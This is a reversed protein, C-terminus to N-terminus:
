AFHRRPETAYAFPHTRPRCGSTDNEAAENPCSPGAAPIRDRHAVLCYQLHPQKFDDQSSNGESLMHKETCPVVTCSCLIRADSLKCRQRRKDGPARRWRFQSQPFLIVSPLDLAFVESNRTTKVFFDRRAACTRNWDKCRAQQVSCCVELGIDM